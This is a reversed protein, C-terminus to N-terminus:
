VLRSGIGGLLILSILVMILWPQRKQGITRNTKKQRTNYFGHSDGFMPTQWKSQSHSSDTLRM